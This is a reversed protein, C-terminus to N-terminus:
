GSGRGSPSPSSTRKWSNARGAAVVSAALIAMPPESPMRYRLSGVTLAHVISFYLAPTLLFFKVTPALDGWFLGSLILVDMPVGYLFGALRYRPQAYDRSLTVPSWFRALKAAALWTCHAPHESAYQRAKAALYDSRDVESLVQLQPQRDVFSQDSGGTAEPNYGDYLTFGTNTDLPVWRGLIRFDRLGWPTLVVAALLLMTAGAPLPWRAAVVSATGKAQQYAKARRHNVIVAALAIVVGLAIASPRVLISIALLACGGLWVFTQRWSASQGGGGRLMLYMAWALMATFVTESLLLGSFYILYPNLTVIWAAVLGVADGRRVPALLVALLYVALVTSTDVVAQVARAIRPNAGCAALFVPYGPMRFAFVQDNFRKDIFMLGQGHLLNSALSLYERQDPLADIAADGAPRSLAWGMRLVLAVLLVIALGRRGHRAQSVSAHAV